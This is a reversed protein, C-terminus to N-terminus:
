SRTQDAAPPNITVSEAIPLAWEIGHQQAADLFKLLLTSQILLYENYDETAVYAFIELDLSYDSIKNFRVPIDAPQVLPSGRLIQALGEIFERFKAPNTDRRVRLTPHFWIRDRRTVNEITMASFASNPITVLTRDNTRIRTSRLGIDEVTGSQDGFKCFDGVLVPRDSILSLAGFLNEITKQAALAVALGGVGLGALIANTNYGWSALILVIALLFIGIRIVRAGLPLVSYSLTRESPGMRGLIQASVLDVIRMALAALGLTSFFILLKILYDRLLASPTVLEMLARFVALSILLRLPDTLTNLRYSQLSKAFRQVVPALIFLFLRSLLRSLGFLLLTLFILCIWAWLPTGLLKLRVLVKPMHKEIESAGELSDLDAIRSVSDGSVLWVNTGQQQIRQLFLASPQDGLNSRLLLETDPALGDNFKGAPDDSLQDVEFRPEKDLIDALQKALEPGATRRDDASIKRLDLYRAATVYRQAHCAELFSLIAARPTTRNLSDIAEHASPASVKGGGLLGSLSQAHLLVPAFCFMMALATMGGLWRCDCFIATKAAISLLNIKMTKCRICLADFSAGPWNGFSIKSQLIEHRRM